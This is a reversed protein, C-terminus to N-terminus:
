HAILLKRVVTVAPHTVRAYYTGSSLHSLDVMTREFTLTRELVCRGDVGFLQLKVPLTMGSVAVEVRQRVPNPVLLLDASQAQAIGVTDDIVRFYAVFATDSVVMLQRPNTTDGNDWRDFVVHFETTPPTLPQAVLTVISSDLYVGGGTVIGLSEDNSSVIVTRWVTDPPEITTDNVVRFYAVFATDSVVMLQRPNITNGDNWHDFEYHVDPMPASNPLATITVLSSDAYVGGGTVIGLSTDSSVVEVTRWVTDPILPLTSVTVNINDINCEVQVGRWRFALAVPQNFVAVPVLTDTNVQYNSYTNLNLAEEFDLLPIFTSTDTIDTVIGLTTNGSVNQYFTMVGQFSIHHHHGQPNILPSVVYNYEIGAPNDYFLGYDDLHM